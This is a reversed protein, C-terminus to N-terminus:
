LKKITEPSTYYTAKKSMTLVRSCRRSLKDVKTFLAWIWLQTSLKFIPGFFFEEIKWKRGGYTKAHTCGMYWVLCMNMFLRHWSSLLSEKSWSNWGWSFMMSRFYCFKSYRKLEHNKKFIEQLWITSTIVPPSQNIRMVKLKLFWNEVVKQLPSKTQCSWESEM